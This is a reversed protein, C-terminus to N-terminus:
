LTKLFEEIDNATQISIGQVRKDIRRNMGTLVKGVGIEVFTNVGLDIMNEISQRWRVRSTIQEVLLRQIEKPNKEPKATVNSIIPVTPSRPKIEGLARSMTEAAPAMLPCHFPASVSLLMSRKAGKEKSIRVAREVAESAGSLVIQGPANDNAAVCVEGRAAEAAIQEAQGLDIGILAAMAGDGVPVADQMSRGREKLLRAAEPLKFSKAATLATYEGLSHGAVFKCKEAIEFSGASQLIRILAMSVAMLAPQANETLVLEEEPGDFMLKSLNLKLADNVEEFILKAEPFIKAIEEGMGVAQTGQGPFIFARTM